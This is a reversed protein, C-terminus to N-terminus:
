TATANGGTESDASEDGPGDGPSQGRGRQYRQTLQETLAGFGLLVVALQVVGDLMPVRTAVAIVAVGVLLALWQNTVNAQETLWAGIAIRGYVAGIWIALGFAGMGLLSLPIGVVTILLVLLLIPVTIAAIFGIGGSRLPSEVVRSTVANSFQPFVLLLVAGLLLNALLGYVGFAWAPISKGVGGFLSVSADGQSISGGVVAGDERTLSGEYELDGDVSATEALTIEEAAIDASGDVQGAINVNGGAAEVDGGVTAQEGVVVNGGSAEVDGDVTGDIEISGGVAELDGTVTGRVIITGGFAEFDGDVTEGDDVVITGGSRDDAAAVGPIVAVSVVLVCLLAFTRNLASMM